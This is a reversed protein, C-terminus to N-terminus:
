VKYFKANKPNIKSYYKYLKVYIDKGIGMGICGSLTDLVPEIAIDDRIKHEILYDVFHEMEPMQREIQAKSDKIIAILGDYDSKRTM